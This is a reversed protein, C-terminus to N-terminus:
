RRGVCRWRGLALYFPMRPSITKQDTEDECQLVRVARTLRKSLQRKRHAKRASVEKWIESDLAATAAHDANRALYGWLKEGDDCSLLLM